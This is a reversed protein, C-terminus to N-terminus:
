TNRKKLQQAAHNAAWGGSIATGVVIVVYSEQEKNCYFNEDTFRKNFGNM